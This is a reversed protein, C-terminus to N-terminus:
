DPPETGTLANTQAHWRLRERVDEDDGRGGHDVFSGVGEDEAAGLVSENPHGHVDGELVAPVHDQGVVAADVLAVLDGLRARHRQVAHELGPRGLAVAAVVVIMSSATTSLAMM